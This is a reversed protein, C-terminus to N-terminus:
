PRDECPKVGALRVLLLPWLAILGPTILLKVRIPAAAAAIDIRRLAGALLILTVVAGVSAYGALALWILEAARESM